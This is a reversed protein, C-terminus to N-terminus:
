SWRLAFWVADESREFLWTNFRCKYHGKIYENLWEKLKSYDNTSYQTSAEVKHWGVQTMLNCMIEWDIEDAIAQSMDAVLEEELEVGHLKTKAIIKM